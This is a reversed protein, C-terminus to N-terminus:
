FADEGMTKIKAKLNAMKSPSGANKVAKTALYVNSHTELGRIIVAIEEESLLTVQEPYQQVTKHIERLLNPMMPHKDLIKGKLDEIAEKLKFGDSSTSLNSPSNSPSTMTTDMTTM